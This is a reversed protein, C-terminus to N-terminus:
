LVLWVITIVRDEERQLRCLLGPQMVLSLAGVLSYNYSSGGRAAPSVPLGPQMVLSLAGVLSYNYSSGGRAAPSVLLLLLRAGGLKRRGALRAGRGGPLDVHGELLQLM